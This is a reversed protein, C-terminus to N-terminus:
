GGAVFGKAVIFNPWPEVPNRCIGPFTKSHSKVQAGGGAEVFVHVQMAIQGITKEVFFKFAFGLPIIKEIFVGPLKYMGSVQIVKIIALVIVVFYAEVINKAEGNALLADGNLKHFYLHLLQFVKGTCETTKRYFYFGPSLQKGGQM